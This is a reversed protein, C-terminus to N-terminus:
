RWTKNDVVFLVDDCENSGPNWIVYSTVKRGKPIKKNYGIIYRSGKTGTSYWGHGSGDSVSVIKEVVIYKKGNRNDVIRWFAKDTTKNSEILKIKTYGSEKCLQKVIQWNTKGTNEAAEAFEVCSLMTIAILLAAIIKKM